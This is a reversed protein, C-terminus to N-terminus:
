PRGKPRRPGGVAKLLVTRAEDEGLGALSPAILPRLVPPATASDVRVPILKQKAAVVATWEATTFRDPDFYAQSFLALMRGSALAANMKLVFNEGAGWDWFDLEVEYGADVLQWAVWEAWARDAGAHSVFM